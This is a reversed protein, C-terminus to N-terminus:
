KVILKRVSGDSYRIINIGKQLSNFQRGNLDYYGVIVPTGQEEVESTEIGTTNTTMFIIEEGYQTAEATKAFARICYTTNAQLGTITINMVQGQALVTTVDSDDISSPVLDATVSRSNQVGEDMKWYQFGQEEIEDTGALVYGKVKISNDTIEEVPYTHVTPEFFSFDSPDFTTWDTFYYVGDNDKYFARVNYYSSTQLNKLYGELQGNYIAAYGEKPELSEPSDYKKWQFGVNTENEDVNTTAAVIACTPSVAKPRLMNMELPLTQFSRSFHQINGKCKVDIMVNETYSNPTLGSIKLSEQQFKQKDYYFCWSYVEVDGGDIEPKLIVSTSTIQENWKIDINKTRFSKKSSVCLKGGNYKFYVQVDYKQNCELNEITTSTEFPAYSGNNYLGWEEVQVSEDVALGGVGITLTTQTSSKLIPDFNKLANTSVTQRAGIITDGDEFVAYPYVDYLRGIALGSVNFSDLCEVFRSSEGWSEILVGKSKLIASEDESISINDFKLKTMQAKILKLMGLSLSETMFSATVEKNDQTLLHITYKNPKLGFVQIIGTEKEPIVKSFGAIDNTIKIEKIATNDSYPNERINLYFGKMLAKDCTIAYPDETSYVCADTANKTEELYLQPVFVAADENLDSVYSVPNIMTYLIGHFGSFAGYEINLSHEIIITTSESCDDFATNEISKVNDPIIYTGGRGSPFIYLITKDKSFMIGDVSCLTKHGEDVNIAKLSENNSFISADYTVQAPINITELEKMNEFARKGIFNVSSPLHLDKIGSAYFAKEQIETIGDPLTVSTLESCNSFAYKGIYTVTYLIGDYTVTQPIVVSGSYSGTNVSIQDKYTVEAKYITSGQVNATILNYYIGDIEATYAWVPSSTILLLLLISFVTLNFFKNM